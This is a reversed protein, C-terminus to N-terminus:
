TDERARSNERVAEDIQEESAQEPAEDMPQSTFGKLSASLEAADRKIQVPSTVYATVLEALSRLAHLHIREYGHSADM